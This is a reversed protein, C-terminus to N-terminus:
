KHYYKRKKKKKPVSERLVPIGKKIEQWFIDDGKSERKIVEGMPHWGKGEKTDLEGAIEKIIGPIFVDAVKKGAIRKAKDEEKEGEKENFFIELANYVAGYKFMMSFPNHMIVEKDSEVMDSIWNFMDKKKEKKFAKATKAGSFASEFAPNHLLAKPIHKGKIKWSGDDEEDMDDSNLYGLAFLAVGISGVTLSRSILGAEKDSLDKTGKIMLEALGKQYEGKLMDKKGTTAMLVGYKSYLVRGIFNVPIKVIPLETKLVYSAINKANLVQNVKEIFKNDNMLISWKGHELSIAGMRHQVDPNTIDYKNYEEKLKAIEDKSLNPNKLQNMVDAMRTLYNSTLQEFAFAFEAAKIFSKIYGHSRGPIELMGKGISFEDYMFKNGFAEEKADYGKFNNKLNELSLNKYFAVYYAALSKLSPSSWVGSKSSVGKPLMKNVGLQVATTLPKLVLGHGVLATLKVLTSPYSLIAARQWKSISDM